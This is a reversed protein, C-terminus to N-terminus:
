YQWTLSVRATAVSAGTHSSTHILFDGESFSPDPELVYDVTYRKSTTGDDSVTATALLKKATPSGNTNLPTVAWVSHTWTGVGGAQNTHSCKGGVFSGDALAMPGASLATFSPTSLGTGGVQTNWSSVSNANGTTSWTFRVNAAISGTSSDAYFTASSGGGPNAILSDTESDSTLLRDVVEPPAGPLHQKLFNDDAM